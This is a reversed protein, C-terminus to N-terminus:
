DRGYGALLRTSLDRPGDVAGCVDRAQEHLSPREAHDLQDILDRLIAGQSRGTARAREKLRQVHRRELKVTVAHV